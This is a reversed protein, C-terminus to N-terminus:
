FRAKDYYTRVHPTEEYGKRKASAEVPQEDETADAVAGNAMVVATAAGGAVAVGKLFKRRDKQVSDSKRSM